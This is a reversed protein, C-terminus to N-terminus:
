ILRKKLAEYLLESFLSHISSITSHSYGGKELDKHFMCIEQMTIESIKRDGFVALIHDMDFCSSRFIDPRVILKKEEYFWSNVFERFTVHSDVIYIEGKQININEVFEIIPKLDKKM